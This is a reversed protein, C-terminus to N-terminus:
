RTIYMGPVWNYKKIAKPNTKLFEKVEGVIDTWQLGELAKILNDWAPPSCHSQLWKEIVKELKTNDSFTQTAKVLGDLTNPPVDLASGIEYWQSSRSLLM